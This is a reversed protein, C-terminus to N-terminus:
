DIFFALASGNSFYDDRERGTTISRKEAGENLKSLGGGSACVENTRNHSLNLSREFDSTKVLDSGSRKAGKM